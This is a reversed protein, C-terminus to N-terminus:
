ESKPERWVGKLVQAEISDEPDPVPVSDGQRWRRRVLNGQYMYLRWAARGTLLVQESFAVPFQGVQIVNDERRLELDPFGAMRREDTLKFSM